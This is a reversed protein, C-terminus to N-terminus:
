QYGFKVVEFDNANTSRLMTPLDQHLQTVLDDIGESDFDSVCADLLGVLASSEM